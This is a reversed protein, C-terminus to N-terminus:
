RRVRGIDALLAAAIPSSPNDRAFATLEREADELLGAQADLLGLALHSGEYAQRAARLREVADTALITFRAESAPPAPAIVRGAPTSATVQWSYVGGRPLPTGPTWRLDRLSGSEAVLKLTRDLVAVRYETADRAATWRFEPRDNETATAIPTVVTLAERAGSGMLPGGNVRLQSLIAPVPVRRTLLASAVIERDGSTLWELGDIRGQSDVTVRHGGDVLTPTSQDPPSEPVISPAVAARPGASGDVLRERFRWPRVAVVVVALLIVAAVTARMWVRRQSSLGRPGFAAPVVDGPRSRVVSGAIEANLARLEAVEDACNACDDLHAEVVGRAHMDLLSDVYSALEDATPHEDAAADLSVQVARLLPAARGIVAQQCIECSVARREVDLREAPDTAGSLHREIEAATLHAHGPEPTPM